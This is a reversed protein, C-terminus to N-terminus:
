TILVNSPKRLVDMRKLSIYKIARIPQFIGTKHDVTV